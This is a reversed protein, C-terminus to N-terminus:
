GTTESRSWRVRPTAYLRTLSIVAVPTPRLPDVVSSWILLEYTLAPDEADSVGEPVDEFLHERQRIKQTRRQRDILRRRAIMAVYTTESAKSPM